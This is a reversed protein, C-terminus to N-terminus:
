GATRAIIPTMEDILDNAAAPDLATLALHDVGHSAARESKEIIQDPTGIIMEELRDRQVFRSEGEKLYSYHGEHVDLYLRDLPRARAEAYRTIYQNYEAAADPNVGKLNGGWGGYESEWLTHNYVAAVAGARQIVRDSTIEEGDNLVCAGTLGVTYPHETSRGASRAADEIIPFATDLWPGVGSTVWGDGVEGVVATARPGNAAIYIPVRDKINYFDPHEPHILRIWTERGTVDDAHLVDKGDLLDRVQKAYERFKAVPYSPLGMTNRGTYGTGLALITRGPALKNITAIASATVPAIRNSPISVLTGLKITSTHEAALAMAAYCDSWILQSDPFWAHTFGAAEARVVEKWMDIYTPVLLGYDM